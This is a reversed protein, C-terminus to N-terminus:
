PIEPAAVVTVETEVVGIIDPQMQKALETNATAPVDVVTTTRSPIVANLKTGPAIEHENPYGLIQVFNGETGKTGLATEVVTPTTRNYVYKLTLKYKKTGEQELDQDATYRSATYATIAPELNFGDPLLGYTIRVVGVATLEAVTPASPDEIEPVWLVIGRGDASAGSQWPESM